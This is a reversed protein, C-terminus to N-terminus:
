LSKHSSIINRSGESFIIVWKKGQATSIDNRWVFTQLFAGNWWIIFWFDLPFAGKKGFHNLNKEKIIPIANGCGKTHLFSIEVAWPFFSQILYYIPWWKKGHDTTIDNRWMFPHPFAMEMIFSFFKFWKPFFPANGNSKQNIIQHFGCKNGCPNEM